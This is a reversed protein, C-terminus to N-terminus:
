RKRPLNWFTANIEPPENGTQIYYVSFIRNDDLQISVPYGLDGSGGGDNRLVVEHGVDWSKGLDYSLCARIGLPSRRYGYTCLLSGDKLYLLHTPCGWIPSPSTQEPWNWTRNKGSDDSSALMLYGDREERFAAIWRKGDPLICLSPEVFYEWTLIRAWYRSMTVTAHHQWTKGKDKSGAIDIYQVAPNGTQWAGIYYLTGDPALALGHPAFVPTVTPTDWTYGNDESRMIRAQGDYATVALTGDPLCLIAADRCDKGPNEYVTVRKEWTKGKDKSRVLVVKGYDNGGFHSVGERCVVLIDGNKAQAVGPFAFHRGPEKCVVVTETRVSAFSKETLPVFKFYNLFINPSGLNKIIIKEGDLLVDNKWPIELNWHHADTGLPPNIVAYDKESSLQLGFDTKVNVARVGVLIDYRGKLNPSYTLDPVSPGIFSNLMRDGPVGTWTKIRLVWYGEKYDDVLIKEKPEFDERELPKIIPTGKLMDDEAFCPSGTKGFLPQLVLFSAALIFKGVISKNIGKM